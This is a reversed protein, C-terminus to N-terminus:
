SVSVMDRGILAALERNSSAPDRLTSMLRPLMAPLRPILQRDALDGDLLAAFAALAASEAAGLTADPDIEGGLVRSLFLQDIAAGDVDVDVDIDIPVSEPAEGPATAAPLAASWGASSPQRASPSPTFLSRVRKWM